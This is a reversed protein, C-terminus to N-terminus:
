VASGNFKKRAKSQSLKIPEIANEIQNTTSRIGPTFTESILMQFNIIGTSPATRLQIIRGSSDGSSITIAPIIKTPKDNIIM